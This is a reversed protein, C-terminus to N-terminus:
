RKRLTKCSKLQIQPDNEKILAGEILQYRIGKESKEYEEVAEEESLPQEAIRYGVILFEKPLDFKTESILSETVDNM